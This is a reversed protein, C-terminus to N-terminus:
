PCPRPRIHRLLLSCYGPSDSRSLFFVPLRQDWINGDSLLPNASRLDWCLWLSVPSPELIHNVPVPLLFPEHRHPDKGCLSFESLIRIQSLFDIRTVRFASRMVCLASRM